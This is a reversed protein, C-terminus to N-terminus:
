PGITHGPGKSPALWAVLCFSVPGSVSVVHGEKLTAISILATVLVGGAARLMLKISEHKSAVFCAQNLVTKCRGLAAITTPVGERCSVSHGLSQCPHGIYVTTTFFFPCHRFHCTTIAPFAYLHCIRSHLTEEGKLANACYGDLRCIVLSIARSYIGRGM